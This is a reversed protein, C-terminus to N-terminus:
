KERVIGRLEHSATPFELPSRRIPFADASLAERETLSLIRPHTRQNDHGDALPSLDHKLEGPALSVVTFAVENSRLTRVDCGRSTTWRLRSITFLSIGSRRSSRAIWAEKYPAYAAGPRPAWWSPGVTYGSISVTPVEIMPLARRGISDAHDIVRWDPHHTRWRNFISQAPLQTPRRGFFNELFDLRVQHPGSPLSRGQAFDPATMSRPPLVCMLKRSLITADSQGAVTVAIGLM